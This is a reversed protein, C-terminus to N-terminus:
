ISNMMLPHEFPGFIMETHNHDFKSYKTHIYIFINYLKLKHNLVNYEGSNIGLTGHHRREHHGGAIAAGM